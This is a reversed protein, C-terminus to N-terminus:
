GRCNRVKSSCYRIPMAQPDTSALHQTLQQTLHPSFCVEIKYSIDVAGADESGPIDVQTISWADELRDKRSKRPRDMQGVELVDILMSGPTASDPHPVYKAKTVNRCPLSTGARIMVNVGEERKENHLRLAIDHMVRDRITVGNETGSQKLFKAAGCSTDTFPNSVEKVAAKSQAVTGDKAAQLMKKYHPLRSHGGACCIVDPSVMRANKPNSRLMSDFLDVLSSAKIDNIIANLRKFDIRFWMADNTISTSLCKDMVSTLTTIHYPDKKHGGAAEGKTVVFNHEMLAKVEGFLANRQVAGGKQGIRDIVGADTIENVLHVGARMDTAVAIVEVNGAITAILATDSTGGGADFALAVQDEAIKKIGFKATM